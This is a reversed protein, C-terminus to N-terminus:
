EHIEKMHIRVQGTGTETTLTISTQPRKRTFRSYRKPIIMPTGQQTVFAHLADTSEVIYKHKIPRAPM